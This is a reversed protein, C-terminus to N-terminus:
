VGPLLALCVCSIALPIAGFLRAKRQLQGYQPEATTRKRIKKRKCHFCCHDIEKDLFSRGEKIIGRIM